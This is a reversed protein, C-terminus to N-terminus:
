VITCNAILCYSQALPWLFSMPFSNYKLPQVLVLEEIVLVVTFYSINVVNRYSISIFTANLQWTLHTSHSGM